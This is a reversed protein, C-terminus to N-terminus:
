RYDEIEAKLQLVLVPYSLILNPSYYIRKIDSLQRSSLHNHVTVAGLFKHIVFLYYILRVFDSSNLLTVPLFLCYSTRSRVAHFSTGNSNNFNLLRHRM